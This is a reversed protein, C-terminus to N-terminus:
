VNEFCNSDFVLQEVKLLDITGGLVGSILEEEFGGGEEEKEEKSVPKCLVKSLLIM